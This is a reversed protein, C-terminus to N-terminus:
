DLNYVVEWWNKDIKMEPLVLNMHGPVDLSSWGGGSPTPSLPVESYAFGYEGAHGLDRTEIVVKFKGGATVEAWVCGARQGRGFEQGPKLPRLSKPDGVDHLRLQKTEGPKIGMLRVQQVVAEFRERDFRGPNQNFVVLSLGLPTYMLLAYLTIVLVAVVGAAILLKRM